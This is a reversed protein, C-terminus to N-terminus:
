VPYRLAYRTPPEGLIATFDRSFHAQDAYGLDFALAAWDVTGGAELRATAVERAEAVDGPVILIVSAGRLSDAEALEALSRAHKLCIPCSDSRLFYAISRVESRVTHLTTREGSPPVLELDPM